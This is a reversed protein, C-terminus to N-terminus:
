VKMVEIYASVSFSCTKYGLIGIYWVTSGPNQITVSSNIGFGVDLYDYAFRQPLQGGRVFLDCDGQILTTPLIM